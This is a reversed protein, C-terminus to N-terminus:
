RCWLSPSTINYMVVSSTSTHSSAHHFIWPNSLDVYIACLCDEFALCTGPCAFPLIAAITHIYALAFAEGFSTCQCHGGLCLFPGVLKPCSPVFLPLNCCLLLADHNWQELSNMQICLSSTSPQIVSKCQSWTTEHIWTNHLCKLGIQLLLCRVTLLLTSIAM